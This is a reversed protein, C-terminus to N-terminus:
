KFLRRSYFIGLQIFSDSAKNPSNRLQGISTPRSTPNSFYVAAAGDTKSKELLTLPNPYVDSGVDDLYDSMSKHFSFHAGVSNFRNIQYKLKITVFYGLAMLSYPKKASDILQGGTGLTQLNYTKGKYIGTPSFSAADFGVGISPRFRRAKTYLRNDVFDFQISPSISMMTTSFKMGRAIQENNDSAYDSNSLKFSAITLGASLNSYITYNVHLANFMNMDNKFINQNSITGTFIAGGTQVGLEFRSKLPAEIKQFTNKISDMARAPAKLSDESKKEKILDAILKRRRLDNLYSIYGVKIEPVYNGRNDVINSLNYFGLKKSANVQKTITLKVDNGNPQKDFTLLTDTRKLTSDDKFFSYSLTAKSFDLINNSVLVFGKLPDKIKISDPLETEDINLVNYVHSPNAGIPQNLFPEFEIKPANYNLTQDYLSKRIKDVSTTGLFNKKLPFSKDTGYIGFNAAHVVTDTINDILYNSVFSNGEIKATFRSFLQDARGYVVNTSINYNKFGYVSNNVFANNIIEYNIHDSKLDEFYIAANNGSFLNSNLKFNLFSSDMNFNFPTNLVQIVSVKGINNIFHNESINVADRKWAFDFFIPLQLNRFIVNQIDIKSSDINKIILGVGEMKSKGYFEINKNAGKINVAGECVLVGPEIFEIKAGPEASLEGKVTVVNKIIHVGSAIKLSTYNGSLTDQAKSEQIFCVSLLVSVFIINKLRLM